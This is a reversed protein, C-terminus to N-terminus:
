RVFEEYFDSNVRFSLAQGQLLIDLLVFCFQTAGLSKSINDM